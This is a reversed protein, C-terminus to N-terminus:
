GGLASPRAAAFRDTWDVGRARGHARTRTPGDGVARNRVSVPQLRDSRRAGARRRHHRPVRPGSPRRHQGSRLCGLGFGLQRVPEVVLARCRFARGSPDDGSGTGHSTQPRCRVARCRRLTSFGGVGKYGVEWTDVTEVQLQDNGLARAFTLSDFGWTLSTPLGLNSFGPNADLATFYAEIGNEVRRPADSAASAPARLFWESYNPTQFAHNFTLRVAHDENPSFVIGAKPSFQAKYLNSDDYRLAGVLRIQPTFRYEAQGFFSYFTDSRDDFQAPMLTGETDVRSNRLSGGIVVRGKDNAFGENFQGEVHFIASTERFQIGSGLSVQSDPTSRGSYYAMLNFRDAAWAVRAWPRLSEKVQVRGLGTVVVGNTAQAIGGDVTFVSGDDAYYDLRASGTLTTLPDPSGLASNTIPELTQGTLPRTEELGVSGQNPVSSDTAASYENLLDTGDFRTRAKSWTSTRSYGVNVRYGFRGDAFVGAHRLDARLTSGTSDPLVSSALAGGAVTLKTGRIDRASPTTLNLVGSFANAGYLASGPGRVMEMRELDETPLSLTNWEQAGLFAAALDRGDQLVLIRRNLTTNFGRANVNYDAMGSQVVDVGPVSAVARPAQGTVSMDRTIVPDIVSVAAPAEVIREPARSAGTVVVGSLQIPQEVMEVDLTARQDTQITATQEIPRQGIQRFLVTRTGVPVRQLTYRGDTGTITRLNTGQVSVTVSALPAGDRSRTVQGTISGTQQAALDAYVCSLLALTLTVLKRLSHTDKRTM